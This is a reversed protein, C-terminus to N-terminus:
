MRDSLTMYVCANDRTVWAPTIADEAMARVNMVAALMGALPAGIVPIRKLLAAAMTLRLITTWALPGIIPICDTIAFGNRTIDWRLGEETWRRCDRPHPHYLWTGHTSLLLKGGPRLIRRAEAFYLDLDRVHELVQFSLVLDCSADAVAIRGEENIALDAGTFDAGIYQMGSAEFIPAYPRSGCGFDIAIGGPRVGKAALARLARLMEKLVNYDTDILRPSRRRDYSSLDLIM